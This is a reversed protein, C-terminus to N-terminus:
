GLPVGADPVGRGVAPLAPGLGAKPGRPAPRPSHGWCSLSGKLAPCCRPATPRHARSSHPSLVAGWVQELVVSPPQFSVGAVLKALCSDGRWPCLGRAWGVQPPPCRWAGRHGEPSPPPGEPSHALFHRMKCKDKSCSNLCTSQPVSIPFPPKLAWRGERVCIYESRHRNEREPCSSSVRPANRAPSEKAKREPHARPPAGRSCLVRTRTRWGGGGGPGRGRGVGSARRGRM